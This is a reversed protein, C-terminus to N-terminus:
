DELIQHKIEELTRQYDAQNLVFEKYEESGPFQNLVIDKQCVSTQSIGLYEVLSSFPYNLLSKFDKILFSSYPNLHIYRSLHLLQSDTEIRVAKFRGEFLTGKRKYVINFYHSYSNTSLRIFNAIGKDKVQKLIFHYHNPMLCYAIIEVLLDRKKKLEELVKEKEIKPFEGFKSFRVPPNTNQYYLFAQIFKQYDYKRKFIPTSAVGRNVIHYYEGTVLPITRAPMLKTTAYDWRLTLISENGSHGWFTGVRLDILDIGIWSRFILFM